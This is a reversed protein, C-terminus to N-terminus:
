PLSPDPAVDIDMEEVTTVTVQTRVSPDVSTVVKRLSDPLYTLLKDSYPVIKLTLNSWQDEPIRWLGFDFPKSDFYNDDLLTDGSYLRAADAIYHVQVLLHRGHAEPPIHLKWVAANAWAKEDTAPLDVPDPEGVNEAVIQPPQSRGSVMPTFHEFVGDLAGGLKGNNVLVSSIPPFVFFSPDNGDEVHLQLHDKATLVTATSLIVRDKGAFPVRWFRKAQDPTLVVFHTLAGDDKSLAFAEGTGAELHHIRISDSTVEKVGACQALVNDKADFVFDPDIGALSSFFYWCDSGVNLHCLPQATAYRLMAGNCSLRIPWIGYSGAPITIPENPVNLISDATKLSFQVEAHDPLPTEPQYNNFFLFGSDNNWRVTWRLTEQDTEGHPRLDPMFAPMEILDAGFDQLFLNQERLLHFQGRVEGWAGLPAQFDYDKVPMANHTGYLNHSTENMSSLKGDPDIGGQYMYFGPMTNGDGLRVLNVAAADDPQVFVRHNYNSEMGSGIEACLYPTRVPPSAVSGGPLSAGMEKNNRDLSFVFSGLIPGTKWLGWSYAGFLPLLDQKPIPVGNWGTMLYFPADIGSEQAMAKLSLLYDPKDSENDVQVAFIPGGDKWYLGRTQEAIQQYFPRVLDLYAPDATRLKTQSNVVWDPFGGNRVEGHSWPGIRLSVQLGVGQCLLVFDRLSRNGSWDFQGQQEEQITWVVYVSVATIGGAKMKLLEERWEEQPYRWYHFEGVVAVWPKGDLLLSQSDATLVHGDPNRNSGQKLHLESSPRPQHTLDITLSDASVPRTVMVIALFGLTVYYSFLGIRM